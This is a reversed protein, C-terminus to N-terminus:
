QSKLVYVASSSPSPTVRAVYASVAMASISSIPRVSAAAPSTGGTSVTNTPPPVGVWSGDASRSRISRARSEVNPRTGPTSTVVSAFGSLTVGSESASSRSPPKVRTENPTCDATGCTSAV